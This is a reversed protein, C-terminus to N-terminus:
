QLFIILYVFIGLLITLYYRESNDSISDELDGQIASQLDEIRKVALKLDARASSCEIELSEYRKEM